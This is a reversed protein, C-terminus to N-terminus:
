RVKTGCNTCFREDATLVKNCNPCRLIKSDTNNVEQNQLNAGCKTCFKQGEKVIAGCNFCTPTIPKEEKVLEDDFTFQKSSPMLRTGCITCFKQSASARAGCNPCIVENTKTATESTLDNLNTGCVTCFAQGENVKAGCKPCRKQNLCATIQNVLSTLQPMPDNAAEQYYAKGLELYLKELEKDM